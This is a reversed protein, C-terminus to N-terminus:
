LGFVISKLESSLGPLSASASGVGQPKTAAAALVACAEGHSVIKARPPATLAHVYQQWWPTDLWDRNYPIYTRVWDFEASTSCDAITMLVFRDSGPKPFFRAFLQVAAVKWALPADKEDRNARQTNYHTKLLFVIQKICDAKFTTQSAHANWVVNSAMKPTLGCMAAVASIEPKENTVPCRFPNALDHFTMFALRRRMYPTAKHVPPTLLQPVFEARVYHARNVKSRLDTSDRQSSTPRRHKPPKRPHVRSLKRAAADEARIADAVADSRLVNSATDAFLVGEDGVSGDAFTIESKTERTSATLPRFGSQFDSLQLPRTRSSAMHVDLEQLAEVTPIDFLLHGPNVCNVTTCSPAPKPVPCVMHNGCGAYMWPAVYLGHAMAHFFTQVPMGLPDPYVNPHMLAIEGAGEWTWCDGPKLSRWARIKQFHLMLDFERLLFFLRYEPQLLDQPVQPFQLMPEDNDSDSDVAVHKTETM